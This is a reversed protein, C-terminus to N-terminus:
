AFSAPHICRHFTNKAYFFNTKFFHGPGAHRLFRAFAHALPDPSLDGARQRTFGHSRGLNGRSSLDSSARGLATASGRYRPLTPAITTNAGRSVVLSASRRRRRSVYRRASNGSCRNMTVTRSLRDSSATLAPKRVTCSPLDSHRIRGAHSQYPAHKIGDRLENRMPRAEMSHVADTCRTAAREIRGVVADFRQHDVDPAEYKCRSATEQRSRAQACDVHIVMASRAPDQM